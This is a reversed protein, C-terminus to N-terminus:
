KKKESGKPKEEHRHWDPCICDKSDCECEPCWLEIMGKWAEKKIQTRLEKKLLHKEVTKCPNM